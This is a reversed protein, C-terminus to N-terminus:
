WEHVDNSFPRGPSGVPQPAGGALDASRRALYADIEADCRAYQADSLGPLCLRVLRQLMLGEVQPLAGSRAAVSLISLPPLLHVHCVGRSPRPNLSLARISHWSGLMDALDDETYCLPYPHSISLRQLGRASLLPVLIKTTATAPSADAFDLVVDTLNSVPVHRPLGQPFFLANMNQPAM